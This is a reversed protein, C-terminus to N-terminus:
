EGICNLGHLSFWMRFKDTGLPRLATWGYPFFMMMESLTPTFRRQYRNSFYEDCNSMSFNHTKGDPRVFNNISMKAQFADSKKPTPLFGYGNDCTFRAANRRRFCEGNRMSGARPWTELFEDLGALLSCQATKWSCLDRDYKAFWAACKPGSVAESATSEQEADLQQFTRVPFAALFWTLLETGLDDTLHESTMGSLSHNSVGTTRDHSSFQDPTHSSKLPACPEGDSCNQESFEAVLARSFHWSM